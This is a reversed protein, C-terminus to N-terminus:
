RSWSYYYEKFYRVRFSPNEDVIRMISAAVDLENDSHGYRRWIELRDESVEIIFRVQVM